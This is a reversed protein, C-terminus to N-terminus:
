ALFRPLLQHILGARINPSKERSLWSVDHNLPSICTTMLYSVVPPSWPSSLLCHADKLVM